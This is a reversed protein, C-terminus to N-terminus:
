NETEEETYMKYGYYENMDSRSLAGTNLLYNFQAASLRKMDYYGNRHPISAIFEAEKRKLEEQDIKNGDIDIKKDWHQEYHKWHAVLNYKFLHAAQLDELTREKTAETPLPPAYGLIKKCYFCTMIAKKIETKETEPATASTQYSILMCFTFFRSFFTKM